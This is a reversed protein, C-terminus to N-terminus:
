DVIVGDVGLQRIGSLDTIAIDRFSMRIEGNNRLCNVAQRRHEDSFTFVVAAPSFMIQGQLSLEDTEPSEGSVPTKSEEEDV